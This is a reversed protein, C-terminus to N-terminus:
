RQASPLEMRWIELKENIGILKTTASKVWGHQDTATEFVTSSACIAANEQGAIDVLRAAINIASGHATFDARREGGFDGFVATGSHLGIRTSGIEIGNSELNEKLNDTAELIKFACTLASKRPNEQAIPMGFFAHVSDGVFRDVIGGHEGILSAVLDNYQDLALKVDEPSHQDVFATFGNMDTFLFTAVGERPEMYTQAPGAILLKLLRPDTYRGFAETVHALSKQTQQRRYIAFGTASVISATLPALIPLPWGALIYTLASLMIPALLLGFLAVPVLQVTRTRASLLVGYLTALGTLIVLVLWHAETRPSGDLIHALQLAHIVVGPMRRESSAFRLSTQHRDQDNLLAGILVTRDQLWESNAPLRAVLHAPVIRFPPQTTKGRFVRFRTQEQPALTEGDTALAAALSPLPPFSAITRVVNDHGDALLYPSAIRKNGLMKAEFLPLKDNASLSVAVLDVNLNKITESLHQDDIQNSPMDLVIDLGIRKPNHAEIDKLLQALFRRDIPSRQALSKLTEETIAVIAIDNRPAEKSSLTSEFVDFLVDEAAQLAPARSLLLASAIVALM